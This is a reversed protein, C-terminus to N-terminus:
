VDLDRLNGVSCEDGLSVQHEKWSGVKKKCARLWRFFHYKCSETDLQVELLSRQPTNYQYGFLQQMLRMKKM